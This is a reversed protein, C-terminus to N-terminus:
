SLVIYILVYTGLLIGDLVELTTGIVRGFELGVVSVLRARLLLGKFKGYITGDTSCEPSVIYSGDYTGLPLGDM